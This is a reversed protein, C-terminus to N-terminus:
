AAAAAAAAKAKKKKKKGEGKPPKPAKAPKEAAPHAAAEGAKLLDRLLTMFADRDGRSLLKLLRSDAAEMMPRAAELAARGQDTLRLANARADVASREQDLLGRAKMRGAM